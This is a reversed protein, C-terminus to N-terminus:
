GAWGWTNEKFFLKFNDMRWITKKKIPKKNTKLFLSLFFSLSICIGLLSFCM